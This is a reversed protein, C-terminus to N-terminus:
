KEQRIKLNNMERRERYVVRIGILLVRNLAIPISTFFDGLVEGAANPVFSVTHPHVSTTLCNTLKNLQIKKIFAKKNM